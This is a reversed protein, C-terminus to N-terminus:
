PIFCHVQWVYCPTDGELQSSPQVVQRRTQIQRNKVEKWCSLAESSTGQSTVTSSRSSGAESTSSLASKPVHKGQADLLNQLTSKVKAMRDWFQNSLPTKKNRQQARSSCNPDGVDLPKTSLPSYCSASVNYGTNNDRRKQMGPTHVSDFNLKRPICAPYSSTSPEHARTM